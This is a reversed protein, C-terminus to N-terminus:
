CSFNGNKIIKYTKTSVKFNLLYVGNALHRLDLTINKGFDWQTKYAIVGSLNKVELMTIGKDLSTLINYEGTSPNPFVSVQMEDINSIGTTTKLTPINIIDSPTYCDGQERIEVFYDGLQKNARYKFNTEGEILKGNYYWRYDNAHLNDCAIIWSNLGYAFIQPKKPAEKLTIELPQSTSKCSANIATVKYLGDKLLSSFSAETLDPLLNDNFIWQYNYSTDPNKVAITEFVSPCVSLNGSLTSILPQAPQQIINLEIVESNKSCQSNSVKVKYNGTETPIFQAGSNNIENNGNYWNIANSADTVVTLKRTENSCFSTAGDAKFSNIIPAAITNLTVPIVANASCNASNTLTVSYSGATKAYFETSNSGVVGGKLKWQYSVGDQPSISLKVSDGECFPTTSSATISPNSPASLVTIKSSASTDSCSSALTSKVVVSYNGGKNKVTYINRNAATINYGSDRWQYTCSDQAKVSLITSDGDCFSAKGEISIAAEPIPVVYATQSITDSCGNSSLLKLKINYTGPLSFIHTGPDKLNSTQKDGFDWYYSTIYLANENSTNTITTSNGICVAPATFSAFPKPKVTVEKQLSDTIGSNSTIVLKVNYTGSTDYIHTPNQLTDTSGDGFNWNWSAIGDRPASQDTFNTALGNCVTDAKFFAQVTKITFSDLASWYGGAFAQDIAQVQWYYKGSPLYKLTISSNLWINGMAPTRRFGSDSAAPSGLWTADGDKKFRVNYSMTISPTEDLTVPQWKLNVANPLLEYSLGRPALPKKNAEIKGAKNILNNKYLKFIFGSGYIGTVVIDLDGDNDLDGISTCGNSVNIISVNKDEDFSNGKNNLYANRTSSNRGNLFVDLYGDNNYDCWESNSMFEKSLTANISYFTGDGNNKYIISKLNNGSVLFDSFGDNNYDGWSAYNTGTPLIVSRNDTFFNNQDNHYVELIRNNISTGCLLIDLYGDIDYDSFAISGSYIGSLFISSQETVSGDGNNKYLKTVPNNGSTIERGCLMFDLFGDNNYDGVDISSYTLGPLSIGSESFTGDGNNKYIKSIGSGCLIIDLYGDNNYDCFKGSGSSIGPLTIGINALSFNGDENNKYVLTKQNFFDSGTILIDLFGDNNYDGIDISSSSLGSFSIGSEMFLGTSFQGIDDKNASHKSYYKETGPNGIYEIVQITFISQPSIGKLIINDSIGNYVCYWGTAGIQDGSGFISEDFYTKGNEPKAGSSFGQKCFVVCRQGNGRAWKLKLTVSDQVSGILNSAQISDIIIEKEPSFPGGKLSNDIAQIKVFYTDPILNIIVFTDLNANGLDVHRRFGSNDSSPSLIDRSGSTKGISLNYLLSKSPTKDDNSKNWNIILKNNLITDSLNGPAVPLNNSITCDNRFIKSTKVGQFIGTIVFDADDDNDYDGIALSSNSYAPLNISNQENFVANGNNFYIKLLPTHEKNTITTGLLLIDLLGDNNFDVCKISGRLVGPLSMDTKEIFNNAGTNLYLKTVLNSLADEGSLLIDLYGDCNMDAWAVSSGKVVPSSIGEHESFSGNGNNRYIKSVPSSNSNTGTLLIDLYGDNDYDAWAVSGFIVGPLSIGIQESFTGNGLNRYVKSLPSSGSQGTVIIDKLGDNNYDGWAISGYKLGIFNTGPLETFNGAGNNKYISMSNGSLNNLEGSTLIDLFGDNDYDGWEASCRSLGKLTFSQATFTNNGNNKYVKSVESGTLLIDLYNDNNFDGFDVSGESISVLSISTQETFLSTKQVMPNQEGYISYYTENESSGKYEIVQFIYNTLPKLGMVTVSDNLGKYICFWGSTGIQSGSGFNNNAKYITNNVPSALGSNAEKAFVICSDGDGRTWFLKLTNGGINGFDIYSAQISDTVVFSQDLSFSGGMNGNDIAQVSWYYTGRKLNNLIIFTDMQANGLSFVSTNGSSISLPSKINVGGCTTGVRINYSLGKSPTETDSAARWRLKTKNGNFEPASFSIIPNPKNNTKTCQNVYLKLVHTDFRGILLFDLKVDTNFDGFNLQAYFGQSILLESYTNDGNNFFVKTIKETSNTQSTGTVIIDLLGDNDFDGLGSSGDYVGTVFTQQETFTGDYNNKYIKINKFDNGCLLIDLYGDNNNDGWTISGSSFPLFIQSEIFNGKGNNHYVKSLNGYNNQGTLLIDLYSDNDYDGWAVSSGLVGTLLIQKQETFTGDGNNKYIISIPINGSKRGTLLIDIFGDNNYDGWAVSGNSVGELNISTQEIFNGATNNKYIKSSFSGTIIIDLYGDNNYDGWAVSSYIVGTIVIQYQPIFGAAGDNRYIRSIPINSSDGTILLDLDGDNDYDGMAASGYSLQPFNANVEEFLPSPETSAAKTLM